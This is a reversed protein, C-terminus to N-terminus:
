WVTDLILPSADVPGSQINVCERLPQRIKELDGASCAHITLLPEGKAVKDGVRKCLVLGVAHNICDEKRLRGAGLDRAAIGIRLVDLFSVYGGAPSLLDEVHSAMPLLDPNDIVRPDGGQAEIFERMKGLAKGTALADLARERGRALDDCLGAMQLLHSSLEIVLRRLPTDRSPDKLTEITERVELANGISSSLPQNMDTIIARTDKGALKGINVLARALDRAKELTSMFAGGGAKVDLLICDAGAALKKSMISGAILPVSDVTATVDRLAYMKKDAPALDGTPSIIAFGIKKVQRVFQEETLDIRMGPISELKDLTGGTHALGRGSMKAFPVGCASVIPGLLLSTTDGVGGTSHKDVKKGPVSSLDVRHGSEIMVLTLDRMEEEDMGRFYTAMIFASMQYDPIDGRTFGLIMYQLEERSLRAGDRKKLIIDCATM